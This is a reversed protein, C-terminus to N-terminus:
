KKPPPFNVLLEEVAEDVREQTAERTRDIQRSTAGKWIIDGTQGDLINLLLRGETDPDNFYRTFVGQETPVYEIDVAPTQKVETAFRVKLDASENHAKQTLGKEQLSRGIAQTILRNVYLFDEDAQVSEINFTRYESFERVPEYAYNVPTNMAACGTLLAVGAVLTVPRWSIKQSWNM